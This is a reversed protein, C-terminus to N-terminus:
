RRITRWFLAASPIADHGGTGPLHELRDQQRRPRQGSAQRGAFRHQAIEPRPVPDEDIEGLIHAPAAQLTHGVTELWTATREGPLPVKM